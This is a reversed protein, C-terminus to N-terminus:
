AGLIATKSYPNFIITFANAIIIIDKIKPANRPTNVDTIVAIMENQPNLAIVPPICKFDESIHAAAEIAVNTM